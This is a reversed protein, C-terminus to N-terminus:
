NDDDAFYRAQGSLVYPLPRLIAYVLGLVIGYTLHQAIFAPAYTARMFPNLIPLVLFYAVAWIFMGYILGSIVPIGMDSPLKLIRRTVISYISGLLAATLFHFITGTIVPGAEFGPRMVFPGYFPAAIAKAEIWVDGGLATTLVSAVILMALGAVLGAITGGLGIIDPLPSTRAQYPAAVLNSRSNSRM